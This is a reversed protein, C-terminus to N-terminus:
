RAGEITRCLRRVGEVLDEPPLFSFALRLHRTGDGRAFYSAGPIYSVGSEAARPLLAGADMGPPLTVWTFFGGVPHTWSVDPPAYEALAGLLADRRGRYIGILREVHAALRDLQGPERGAFAAALHGVFPSTGVDVKLVLLRAMLAAPAVLYGLRLGAALIKSFTRVQFVLGEGDLSYLSPLPQGDYRLESYADDELVMVRHRAALAVLRERRERTLTVGAPNHFTPITYILKARRGERALRELLAELADPDLGGDDLPVEQLDAEANRFTQLAGIFTPAEVIVVDGPDVLLHTVLDIGQSGGVTVLLNQASVRLGEAGLKALVLDVFPPPGAIPGYQLADRGQRRLMHAATEILEEIPFSGPDPFGYTLPIIGPPSAAGARFLAPAERAARRALLPQYDM